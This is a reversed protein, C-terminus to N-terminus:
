RPDQAQAGSSNHHEASKATNQSGWSNVSLCSTAIEKCPAKYSILEMLSEDHVGHEELTAHKDSANSLCVGRYFLNGNPSVGHSAAIHQMSESITTAVTARVQYEQTERIGYFKCKIKFRM